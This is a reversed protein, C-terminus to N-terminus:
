RRGSASRISWWRACRRPSRRRAGRMGAWRPAPPQGRGRAVCGHWRWRLMAVGLCGLRGPFGRSSWSGITWRPSWGLFIGFSWIVVRVRGARCGAARGQRPTRAGSRDVNAALPVHAAVRSWRAMPAPFVARVGMRVAPPMRWRWLLGSGEAGPGATFAAGFPRMAEILEEDSDTALVSGAFALLATALVASRPKSRYGPQRNSSGRGRRRGDIALAEVAVDPVTVLLEITEGVFSVLGCLIRFAWCWEAAEVVRGAVPRPRGNAADLFALQALCLEESVPVRALETLPFGCMRVRTRNACRTPDVLVTRPPVGQNRETGRRLELGCGACHSVLMLGHVPCVAAAALRWWLLWVGGSEVLCAPCARSTTFLAWERFWVRQASVKDEALDSLDLVTGDYVSLHMADLAGGGVGSAALVAERQEDTATIGFLLSLPRRVAGQVVRLGLDDAVLGPPRRLDRGLRDIWSALSEGPEPPVVLGLRRPLGGSVIM